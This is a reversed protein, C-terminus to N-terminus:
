EKISEIAKCMIDKVIEKAEKEAVGLDKLKKVNKCFIEIMYTFDIKKNAMEMKLGKTQLQYQSDFFM